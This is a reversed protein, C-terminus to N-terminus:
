RYGSMVVQTGPCDAFAGSVLGAMTAAGAPDGGELFGQVDAAYDVGQFAVNGSGLLSQLASQLPPGVITGINGGETTGRAFVVSVPRCIGNVLDNATGGIQRTSHIAVKTVPVSYALPPLLSLLFFHTSFLM